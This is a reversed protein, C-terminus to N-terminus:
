PYTDPCAPDFVESVWFLVVLDEEDSTNRISHSFGPPVDVVAIREGSVAYSRVDDGTVAELRIQAHGRLVCFKEVKHDHYHGGRTVGPRSTSVFVQGASPSKLLEVLDGRDDSVVHPTHLLTDPECHSLYTAYLCRTLRDGLDPLVLSTRVDRLQRIRRALDGVTLQFVEGPECFRLGDHRPERELLDVFRRVVDEVYVLNLLHASDDIRIDLGRALNHCFTAVVSNYHPRCWRGFVNPLRFVYVAAGADDHYRALLDEAQRKSRGYPTDTVAQTSSAFAIPTARGLDRLIQVVDRTLHVNGRLFDAEDRARNVGALHYVFDCQGLAAALDGPTDTSRHELVELDPDRKLATVLNRGIFGGAGLVLPRVTM